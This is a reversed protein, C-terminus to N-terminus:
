ETWVAQEGMAVETSNILIFDDLVDIADPFTAKIRAQLEDSDKSAAVLRPWSSRSLRPYLRDRRHRECSRAPCARRRGARNSGPWNSWRATGPSSMRRATNAWGSICRTSYSIAPLCHRSTPRGCHPRFQTIEGM